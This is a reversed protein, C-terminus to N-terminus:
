RDLDGSKVQDLFAGFAGSGFALVPSPEGLKSDRVGRLGPADGVEVCENNAGSYSSKHWAVQENM